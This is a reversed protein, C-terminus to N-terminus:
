FLEKPAQKVQDCIGNSAWKCYKCEWTERVALPPVGAKIARELWDRKLKASSWNEDIEDQTFTFKYTNMIPKRDDIEGKKKKWVWSWDGNIHLVILGFETVNNIKCYAMMQRTYATQEEIDKKSSLYTTKVEWHEGEASIYDPTIFIGDVCHEEQGEGKTIYDEFALGLSFMLINKDAKDEQLSPHKRAYFPKRLCYNLDSFHIGESRTKGNEKLLSIVREYLVDDQKIEM